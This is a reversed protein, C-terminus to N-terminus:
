SGKLNKPPHWAQVASVKVPDCKVGHQSIVHGLYTTELQFLHCKKAKLKVGAALLREFVVHLNHLVEEVASGYVIVDDIYALAINHELGQLMRDMLRQFTRPAGVLGFPMSIWEWHPPNVCPVHFATKEQAQQTLEVNHYGQQIDLACFYKARSLSDLTDDIRPMMYSDPNKTKLNLERYDICM